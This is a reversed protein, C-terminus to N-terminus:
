WVERNDAWEILTKIAVNMRRYLPGLSDGSVLLCADDAFGAINVGHKDFAELLQDFILNWAVVPGIQNKSLSIIGKGKNLDIHPFFIHSQRADKIKNWRAQWKDRTFRNIAQKVCTRSVPFFPVPGILTKGAGEKAKIDALENGYHGVHAKIWKVVINKSRGAENLSDKTRKVTM